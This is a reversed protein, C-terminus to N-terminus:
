FACNNPLPQAAELEAAFSPNVTSDSFGLEINGRFVRTGYGQNNMHARVIVVEDAAIDVPGGARTFPQENIHSHALVRRYILRGDPSLVEWWDAYQDCGTDPSAVTVSFIYNGPEGSFNVATVLASQNEAIVASQNAEPETASDNSGCGTLTMLFCLSTILRSNKM